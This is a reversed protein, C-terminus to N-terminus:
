KVVHFDPRAIWAAMAAADLYVADGVRICRGADDLRRLLTATPPDHFEVFVWGDTRQTVQQAMRALAPRGALDSVFIHLGIDCRMTTGAAREVLQLEEPDTEAEAPQIDYGYPLGDASHWYRPDPEYRTLGESVM